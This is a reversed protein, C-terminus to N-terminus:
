PCADEIGTIDGSRVERLPPPDSASPDARLLNLAIDFSNSSSFVYRTCNRVQLENLSVIDSLTVPIAAGKAVFAGFDPSHEVALRCLTPCCYALVIHQSLPLYIEVGLCVLATGGGHQNRLAVPRDSTYFTAGEAQALLLFRSKDRLGGAVIALKEKIIQFVASASESKTTQSLLWAPSGRPPPKPSNRIKAAVNALNDKARPTRLMQAVVFQDVTAWADASLSVTMHTKCISKIIPDVKGELATLDDEISAREQDDQTYNYFDREWGFSKPKGKLITGSKKDLRYLLGDPTTFSSLILQPNFHNKRKRGLKRRQNSSSNQSNM